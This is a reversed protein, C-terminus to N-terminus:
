YNKTFKDLQAVLYHLLKQIGKFDVVLVNVAALNAFGFGKFLM